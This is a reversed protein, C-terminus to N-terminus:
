PAMMKTLINNSSFTYSIKDASYILGFWGRDDWVTFSMNNALTTTKITRYYEHVVSTNRDASTRGVGFEGYNIPIEILAAHAAVKNIAAAISSAGPYASDSGTQGCFAWPDYTHVQIALYKDAGLGPLSSKNPYVEDIMGQNGQGNPSVMIVRTTNAGGTARIANYGVLNVKRTYTIAQTNTPLVNTGWQGLAGEPENLVEFILKNSYNKFYNAIDTWINSFKTDYAASGDYNDKLWHEHHTNIVVYLNKSLAYDIAAKLELFRSHTYDVRGTSTNALTSGSVSQAWSVPIRIHKMGAGVYLDIISKISAISTANIGNEFTNGLNFGPGMAKIINTAYEGVIVYVSVSTTTKTNKGNNYATVTVNYTNTGATTFTYTLEGNPMTQTKGDVQIQYTTANTATAKFKVMGSGNGNPKDTSTGIIESTIKLDSPASSPIDGSDDKSCSLLLAVFGLLLYSIKKM